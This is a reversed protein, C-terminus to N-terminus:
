ATLSKKMLLAKSIALFFFGFSIFHVAFAIHYFEKNTKIMEETIMFFPAILVSYLFLGTVIWFSPITRLRAINKKHFSEFYYVLCFGALFILESSILFDSFKIIVNDPPSKDICYLFYAFISIILFVLFFNMIRKAIVSFIIHRFYIFFLIYEILAFVINGSEEVFFYGKKKPSLLAENIIFLSFAASSYILFLVALKQKKLLFMSIFIAILQCSLTFLNAYFVTRSQSLFNQIIESNM